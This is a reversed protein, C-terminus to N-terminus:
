STMMHYLRIDFLQAKTARIEPTFAVNHLVDFLRRHLINAPTIQLTPSHMM